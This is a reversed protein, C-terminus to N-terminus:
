FRFREAVLGRRSRPWITPMNLSELTTRLQRDVTAIGISEKEALAYTVLSADVDSPGPKHEVIPYDRAHLYNLSVKAWNRAPAPAKRALRELEFVVLDLVVTRVTGSLTTRIEENIDRHQRILTLLFSTDVLIRTPSRIRSDSRIM